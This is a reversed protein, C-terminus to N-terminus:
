CIVEAEDITFGCDDDSETLCPAAGVACDVDAVSGCPRRMVYHHNDGTRSDYRAV